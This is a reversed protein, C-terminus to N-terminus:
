GSSGCVRFEGTAGDQTVTFTETQDGGPFHLVVPVEIINQEVIPNGVSFSTVGSPGRGRAFESETENAQL